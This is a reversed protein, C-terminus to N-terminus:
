KKRHKSQQSGPDNPSGQLDNKVVEGMLLVDAGAMRAAHIATLDSTLPATSALRIPSANALAEATLVETVHAQPVQVVLAQEFERSLTGASVIPAIAVRSAAPINLHSPHLVHIPASM